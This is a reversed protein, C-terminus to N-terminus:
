DYIPGINCEVGGVCTNATTYSISPTGGGGCQSTFKSRTHGTSGNGSPYAEYEYQLFATGSKLQPNTWVRTWNLWYSTGLVYVRCSKTFQTSSSQNLITVCSDRNPFQSLFRVEALDSATKNQAACENAYNQASAHHITGLTLAAFMTLTAILRKM